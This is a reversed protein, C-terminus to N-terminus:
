EQACTEADVIQAYLFNYMRDAQAPSKEVLLCALVNAQAPTLLSITSALNQLNM